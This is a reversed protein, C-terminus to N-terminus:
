IVQGFGKLAFRRGRDDDASSRGSQRGGELKHSQADPGQHELLGAFHPADGAGNAMLAISEVDTTVTEERLDRFDIAQPTLHESLLEQLDPAERPDKEM